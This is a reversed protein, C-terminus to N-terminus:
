PRLRPRPPFTDDAAGGMEEVTDDPPATVAPTPTPSSADALQRQLTLVMAQVGPDPSATALELAQRAADRDPPLGDAGQILDLALQVAAGADGAEASALRLARAGPIDKGFPSGRMLLGALGDTAKSSGKQVARDLVARINRLRAPTFEAKPNDLSAILRPVAFDRGQYVAISYYHAADDLFAPDERQELRKAYYAAALGEGADALTQLQSDSLKRGALMSKRLDKLWPSGAIAPPLVVDARAPAAAALALVMAIHVVSRM